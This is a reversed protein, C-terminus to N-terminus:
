LVVCGRTYRVDYGSRKCVVVCRKCLRCGKRRYIYARGAVRESRRVCGRDGGVKGGRGGGGTHKM